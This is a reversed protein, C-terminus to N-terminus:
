LRFPAQEILWGWMSTAKTPTISAVMASYHPIIVPASLLDSGDLPPSFRGGVGFPQYIETTIVASPTPVEAASLGFLDLQSFCSTPYNTSYYSVQTDVAKPRYSPWHAGWIDCKPPPPAFLWAIEDIFGSGNATPPNPYKLPAIKGTAAAYAWGVLWSEGGFTDWTSTLLSQTYSYGHSIGTTLVLPDWDINQLMSITGSTDLGLAQQAELLSIAAIITDVSSWETNVAITINNTPTIIEVFHPWIGNYRPIDLLLTNSIQTVIDVADQYNVIDLQHAVATAAALSGTAPVADFVGSAFNARDRVLGTNPDWNNLLMGYSWTFAQEAPNTIPTTATLAIRDIVIYNDPNVQDLLWILSTTDTMPPLSYVLTQRGGTLTTTMIWNASAGNKLELKLNGNPSTIHSDAIEIVLGTIQSQYTTSIAAPLAASFNLPLGERELHNLSAWMGGWTGTVLATVSGPGYNLVAEGLAGRDGGLRNYFYAADDQIPQPQFDDILITITSILTFAQPSVATEGSSFPQWVYSQADVQHSQNLVWLFLWCIGLGLSFPVALRHLAKLKLM